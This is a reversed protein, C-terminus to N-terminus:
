RRKTAPHVASTQIDELVRIRRTAHYEHGGRTVVLLELVYDGAHALTRQGNIGKGIKEGNLSWLFDATRHWDAPCDASYALLLPEFGIASSVRIGM